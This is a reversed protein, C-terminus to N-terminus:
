YTFNVFNQRREGSLMSTILCIFSLAHCNQGSFLPYGFSLKFFHSIRGSTWILSDVNKVTGSMSVVLLSMERKCRDERYDLTNKKSCLKTKVVALYYVAHGFFNAFINKTKWCATRKYQFCKWKRTDFKDWIVIFISHSSLM